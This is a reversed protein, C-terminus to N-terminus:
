SGNILEDGMHQNQQMTQNHSSMGGLNRQQSVPKKQEFSKNCAAAQKINM